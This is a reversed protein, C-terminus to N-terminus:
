LPWEVQGRKIPGLNGGTGDTINIQALMQEDLATEACAQRLAPNKPLENRIQGLLDNLAKGSWVETTPSNQARKVQERRDRELDDAATPLHNREWLLQEKMKRRNDIKKSFAEENLIRARSQSDIVHALGHYGYPDALYGWWWYPAAGAHHAYPHVVL